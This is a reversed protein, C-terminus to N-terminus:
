NSVQHPRCRPPWWPRAGCRMRASRCRVRHSPSSPPTRYHFASKLTNAANPTTGFEVSAGYAHDDYPSHFRGNLSQTTYTSDDFADLGNAFTNYYAKGKVYSSSGLQTSTLVSTNSVDWYPWRWFSNGPVPPNNRM